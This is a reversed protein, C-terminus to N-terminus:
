TNFAHVSGISVAMIEDLLYQGISRPSLNNEFYSVNNQKIEKIRRSDDLFAELLSPIARYEDDGAIIKDQSWNLNLSLLNKNEELPVPWLTHPETDFVPCGGMALIDTMRWPICYHMGLRMITLDSQATIQWLDYLNIPKTGCPIGQKSLRNAIADIKGTVLYAYVFKRCRLKAIEELLRLNHEVGESEKVGGWVRVVFSLDYKKSSRRYSRLKELRNLILPNPYYIPKVNSPYRKKKWYNAKFYIDSWQQLSESTIDGSDAMDICIKSERGNIEFTYQGVIKHFHSSPTEVNGEVKSAASELLKGVDAWKSLVKHIRYFQLTKSLMSLLRANQSM